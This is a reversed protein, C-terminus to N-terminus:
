KIGPRITADPFINQALALGDQWERQNGDSGIKLAGPALFEACCLVAVVQEDYPKQATNCFNFEPEHKKCIHFTEHDENKSADGNFIINSEDIVPKGDGCGGFLQANSTLIKAANALQQWEGDTFSRTSPFYHSFGL